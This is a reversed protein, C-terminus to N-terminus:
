GESLQETQVEESILSDEPTVTIDGTPHNAIQQLLEESELLQNTWDQCVEEISSGEGGYEPPLVPASFFDSLTDQFDAGHM